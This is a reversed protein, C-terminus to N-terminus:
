YRDDRDNSLRGRDSDAKWGPPHHLRGDEDRWPGRGYSSEVARDYRDHDYSRSVRYNSDYDRTSHHDSDTCGILWPTGVLAAALLGKIFRV